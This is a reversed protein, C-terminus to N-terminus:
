EAGGKLRTPCVIAQKTQTKIAIPKLKDFFDIEVTEDKFANLAEKLLKANFGIKFNHEGNEFCKLDPYEEEAKRYTQKETLFDFVIEREIDTIIVYGTKSPTKVIPVLLVGNDGNYPVIIQVAKYTDAATAKCTGNECELKVFQFIPRFDTKSVYNKCTNMIEKLNEVTM